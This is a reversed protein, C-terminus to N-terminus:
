VPIYDALSRSKEDNVRVGYEPVSWKDIDIRLVLIYFRYIDWHTYPNERM